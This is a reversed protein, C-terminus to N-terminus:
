GVQRLFFGLSIDGLDNGAEDLGSCIEKAGKIKEAQVKRPPPVAKGESQRKKRRLEHSEELRRKHLHQWGCLFFFEFSVTM